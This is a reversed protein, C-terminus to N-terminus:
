MDISEVFRNLDEVTDKVLTKQTQSPDTQLNIKSDFKPEMGDFDTIIETGSNYKAYDKMFEVAEVLSEPKTPDFCNYTFGYEFDLKQNYNKQNDYPTKKKYMTWGTCEPHSNNYKFDVGLVSPIYVFCKPLFPRKTLIDISKRDIEAGIANTIVQTLPLDVDLVLIGELKGIEVAGNNVSKKRYEEFVSKSVVVPIASDIDWDEPTSLSMYM